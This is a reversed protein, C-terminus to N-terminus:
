ESVTEQSYQCNGSLVLERMADRFDQESFSAVRSDVFHRIVQAECKGYFWSDLWFNSTNPAKSLISIPMPCSYHDSSAISVEKSHIKECIFCGFNEFYNGNEDFDEIGWDRQHLTNALLSNSVSSKLKHDLYSNYEANNNNLRHLFKALQKPSAFDLGLIASKDNPLWDQFWM